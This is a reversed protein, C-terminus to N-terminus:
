CGPQHTTGPGNLRDGTPGGVLAPPSTLVLSFCAAVWQQAHMHVNPADRGDRSHGAWSRRRQLLTTSSPRPPPDLLRTPWAHAGVHEGQWAKWESSAPVPICITNHSSGPTAVLYLRGRAEDARHSAHVRYVPCWKATHTSHPGAHAPCATPKPQTPSHPPLAPHQREERTGGVPGYGTVPLQPSPAQLVFPTGPERRRCNLPHVGGAPTYAKLAPIAQWVSRVTITM